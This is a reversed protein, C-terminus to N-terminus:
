KWRAGFVGTYDAGDHNMKFLKVAPNGPEAPSTGNEYVGEKPAWYVKLEGNDNKIQVTIMGVWDDADATGPATGGDEEGVTINLYWSEGPKLDGQFLTKGTICRSEGQPNDSIEGISTMKWHQTNGPERQAYTDGKTNQGQVTVYVEDAGEETPKNCCLSSLYCEFHRSQYKRERLLANIQYQPTKGYKTSWLAAWSDNIQAYIVLNGDDQMQLKSVYGAYGYTETNWVATTSSNYLVLNGDSQMLCRVVGSRYTNSNWVARERANYVVLNGDTQFQVFYNHGPSWYRQNVILDANIVEQAHLHVAALLLIATLFKCKM